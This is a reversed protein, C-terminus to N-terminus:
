ITIKVSTGQGSKTQVSISGNLKELNAKAIPLGFGNGKKLGVHKQGVYLPDFIHMFEIDDIGSGNDKIEIVFNDEVKDLIIEILDGSKSFKFANDIINQVAIIFLQYDTTIKQEDLNNSIEVIHNTKYIYRVKNVADNIADLLNFETINIAKGAVQSNHYQEIQSVLEVLEQVAKQSTAIPKHLTHDENTKLKILELYSAIATLPTRFQHSTNLIINTKLDSVEREKKLSERITQNAIILEETREAVLNELLLNKKKSKKYFSSFIFYLVILLLVIVAIILYNLESKYTNEKKLYEIEKQKLNNDHKIEAYMVKELAKENNLTDKLEKYKYFYNYAKEYNGIKKQLESLDLYANALRDYDNVQTGYNVAKLYFETSKNFLAIDKKGKILANEFLRRYYLGSYFYSVVMMEPSNLEEAIKLGEDIYPKAKDLKNQKIYTNGMNSLNMSVFNLKGIKRNIELAKKFYYNAKNYDKQIDYITAINNYLISQHLSEENPQSYTLSKKYYIMAKDYDEMQFYCNGINTYSSRVENIRDSKKFEDISLLLKEIAEDMRNLNMLSVGYNVYASGLKDEIKNEKYIKIALELNEIAESYKSQNNNSIAMIVYADGLRKFDNINNYIEIAKLLNIKSSDSKGIVTYCTGILQYANATIEVKDYKKAFHLAKNAYSLSLNADSLYLLKALETYIEAKNEEKASKLLTNLSDLQKSKPDNVQSFLNITLFLILFLIPKM